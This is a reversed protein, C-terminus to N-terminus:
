PNWIINPTDIIQMGIKLIDWYCHSCISSDEDFAEISVLLFLLQKTRMFM